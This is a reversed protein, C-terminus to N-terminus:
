TNFNEFYTKIKHKYKLINEKTTELSYINMKLNKYKSEIKDYKIKFKDYEYNKKRYEDELKQFMLSIRILRSTKNNSSISECIEEVYQNFIANLEEYEPEIEKLEMKMNNLKIRILRLERPLVNKLKLCCSEIRTIFKRVDLIGEYELISDIFDLAGSIKECRFETLKYGSLEEIIKESNQNIFKFRNGTLFLEIGSVMKECEGIIYKNVFEIENTTSLNCASCAYEFAEIWSDNHLRHKSSYRIIEYLNANRYLVWESYPLINIEKYRLKTYFYSVSGYGFNTKIEVSFVNNIKYKPTSWGTKRHSYAIIEDKNMMKECVIYALSLYYANVREAIDKRLENKLFEEGSNSISLNYKNKIDNLELNIGQYAGSLNQCYDFKNLLLSLSKNDLILKIIHSLTNGSDNILQLLEKVQKELPKEIDIYDLYVLRSKPNKRLVCIKDINIQSKM